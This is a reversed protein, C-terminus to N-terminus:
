LKGERILKEVTGLEWEVWEMEEKTIEDSDRKQIDLENELESIKDMKKHWKDWWSMDDLTGSEGHIKEHLEDLFRQEEETIHGDAAYHGSDVAEQSLYEKEFKKEKEERGKVIFHKQAEELSIKNDIAYNTIRDRDKDTMKGSELIHTM